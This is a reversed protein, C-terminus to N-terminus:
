LVTKLWQRLWGAFSDFEALYRLILATVGSSTM